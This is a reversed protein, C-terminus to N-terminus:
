PPARQEQGDQEGPRHIKRGRGGHDGDSQQADLAGFFIRQPGREAAAESKQGREGQRQRQKEQEPKRNQRQAQKQKQKDRDALPQVDLLAEGHAGHEHEVDPIGPGYGGGEHEVFGDQHGM